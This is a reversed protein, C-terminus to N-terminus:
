QVVGTETTIHNDGRKARALLSDKDLKRLWIEAYHILKALMKSNFTKQQEKLAVLTKVLADREPNM